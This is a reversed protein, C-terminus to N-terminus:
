YIRPFESCMPRISAKSLRIMQSSAVKVKTSICPHLQIPTWAPLSCRVCRMKLSICYNFYTDGRTEDRRNLSIVAIFLVDDVEPAIPIDNEATNVPDLCKGSDAELQFYESDPEIHPSQRRLHSYGASSLYRFPVRHSPLASIGPLLESSM